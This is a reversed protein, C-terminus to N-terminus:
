QGALSIFRKALNKRSFQEIGSSQVKLKNELYRKFYNKLVTKMGDFDNFDLTIGANTESIIAAIDSDTEGIALVPRKLAPYEYLKGPIM